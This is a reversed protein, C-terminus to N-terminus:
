QQHYTTPHTTLTTNDSQNHRRTDWERFDSEYYYWGPKSLSELMIMFQVTPENGDISFVIGRDHDFFAWRMFRITNDRMSVISIVNRSRNKMTTLADLVDSDEIQVRRGIDFVHMEGNAIDDRSINVSAHGSDMLFQAVTSLLEYDEIFVEEAYEANIHGSIFLGWIFSFIFLAAIVIPAAILAISIIFLTKKKKKM